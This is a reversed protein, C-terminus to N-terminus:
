NPDQMSGYSFDDDSSSSGSSSGRTRGAGKGVLALEMAGRKTPEGLDSDEDRSSTSDYGRGRGRDGGIIGSGYGSSSNGGDDDDSDGIEGLAVPPAIAGDVAGYFGGGAGASRKVGAGRVWRHAKAAKRKYYLIENKELHFLKIAVRLEGRSSKWTGLV